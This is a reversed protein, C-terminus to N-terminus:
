YSMGRVSSSKKGRLFGDEVADVFIIGSECTVAVDAQGDNIGNKRYAVPDCRRDDRECTPSSKYKHAKGFKFRAERGPGLHAM